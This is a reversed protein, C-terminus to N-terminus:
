LEIYDTITGADLYVIQQEPLQVYHESMYQKLDVEYDEIFDIVDAETVLGGNIESLLNLRRKIEDGKIGLNYLNYAM